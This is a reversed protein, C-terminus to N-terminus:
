MNAFRLEIYSHEIENEMYIFEKRIIFKLYLKYGVTKYYNFRFGQVLRWSPRFTAIYSTVATDVFVM